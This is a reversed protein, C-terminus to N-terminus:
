PGAVLWERLVGVIGRERDRTTVVRSERIGIRQEDNASHLGRYWTRM